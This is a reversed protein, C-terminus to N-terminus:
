SSWLYVHSGNFICYRTGIWSLMTPSGSVNGAVTWLLRREGSYRPSHRQIYLHAWIGWLMNVNITGCWCAGRGWMNGRLPTLLRSRAGMQPLRSKPIPIGLASHCRTQPILICPFALIFARYLPRPVLSVRWAVENSVGHVHVYTIISIKARSTFYNNEKTLDSPDSLHLLCSRHLFIGSFCQYTKVQGRPKLSQLCM